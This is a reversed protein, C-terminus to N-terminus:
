LGEPVRKSGENLVRPLAPPGGPRGLGGSLRPFARPLGLFSCNGSINAVAETQVLGKVKLSFSCIDGRMLEGMGTILSAREDSRRMVGHLFCTRFYGYTFSKFMTFVDEEDARAPKRTLSQSGARASRAASACCRRTLGLRAQDLSPSLRLKAESILPPGIAGAEYHRGWGKKYVEGDQRDM